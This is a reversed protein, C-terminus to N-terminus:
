GGQQHWRKPILLYDKITTRETSYQRFSFYVNERKPNLLGLTKSLHIALRINLSGENGWYILKPHSLLTGKSIPHVSWCSLFWPPLLRSTEKTPFFGWTIHPLRWMDMLLTEILDVPCFVQISNSPVISAPSPGWVPSCWSRSNDLTHHCAPHPRHCSSPLTFWLQVM